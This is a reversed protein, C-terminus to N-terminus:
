TLSVGSLPLDRLFSFTAHIAGARDPIADNTYVRLTLGSCTPLVARAQNFSFCILFRDDYRQVMPPREARVLLYWDRVDFLTEHGVQLQLRTFPWPGQANAADDYFFELTFYDVVAARAPLNFEYTLGYDVDKLDDDYGIVRFGLGFASPPDVFPNADAGNGFQVDSLLQIQYTGIATSAM